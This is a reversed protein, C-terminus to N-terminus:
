YMFNNILHSCVSCKGNLGDMSTRKGLRVYHVVYQLEKDKYRDATPRSWSLQVSTRKEKLLIATINLVEDPVGGTKVPVSFPSGFFDGKFPIVTVHMSVGPPLDTVTLYSLFFSFILSKIRSLCLSFSFICYSIFFCVSLRLNEAEAM